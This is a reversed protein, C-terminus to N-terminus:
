LHPQLNKRSENEWNPEESWLAVVFSRIKNISILFLYFLPLFRVNQCLCFRSPPSVAFAITMWMAVVTAFLLMLLLLFGFFVLLLMLRLRYMLDESSHIKNIYISNFKWKFQWPSYYLQVNLYTSKVNTDYPSWSFIWLSCDSNRIPALNDGSVNTVRENCQVYYRILVGWIIYVCVVGIAATRCMTCCIHAHKDVKKNDANLPM